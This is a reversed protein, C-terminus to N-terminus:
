LKTNFYFLLASYIQILVSKPIHRKSYTIFNGDKLNNVDVKGLIVDFMGSELFYCIDGKGLVVFM